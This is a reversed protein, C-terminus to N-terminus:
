FGASAIRRAAEEVEEIPPCLAWRVYDAGPNSGDELPTALWSGPVVACALSPSLLRRAFALDTMGEPVKQWIYIAADPPQASLGATSFADMLLEMKARYESRAAEVHVEDNLAAAAADQVFDPAGSDINTKLKKMLTVLTKDGCMWGIRYGTMASRKSLSQFVVVGERGFELFSRPPSTFYIETYAEDSALVIDNERAFSVTEEYFSDPPTRGTPSNPYNVWLIKAREVIEQPITKFDPLFGTRAALPYYYTRGEAFTAGTKYPPYGPSPVLAVDGPNLVAEPFHFVAEKSGVTVMIEDAPDLDVAFRRQMWRAIEERLHMSGVYSPYGASAHRDLGDAAVRRIFEPTPYAPDGVGFDIVKIGQRRLEAVRKDIEDFAYGGLLSLRKSPVFPM